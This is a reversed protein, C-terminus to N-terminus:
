KETRPIIINSIYWLTTKFYLGVGLVSVYKIYAAKSIGMERQFTLHKKEVKYFQSYQSIM